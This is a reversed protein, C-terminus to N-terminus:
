SGQTLICYWPSFILVTACLPYLMDVWLKGWLAENALGNLEPKIFYEWGVTMVTIGVIVIDLM